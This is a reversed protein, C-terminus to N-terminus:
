AYHKMRRSASPKLCHAIALAGLSMVALSALPFTGMTNAAIAAPRKQGVLQMRRMTMRAGLESLRSALAREATPLLVTEEDAVHHITERMLQMFRADYAADDPGMARLKAIDERMKDHEPKSKALTDDGPLAEALAPYFIEEELQAHIELATCALEVIARKRWWPSDAHYRHFAAMVHTHDMRIMTTISPSVSQM